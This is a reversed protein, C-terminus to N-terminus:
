VGTGKSGPSAMDEPDTAMLARLERIRTLTAEHEEVETPPESGPTRLADALERYAFLDDLYAQRMRAKFNKPRVVREPPALWEVEVEDRTFVIGWQGPMRVEVTEWDTMRSALSCKGWLGLWSGRLTGDAEYLPRMEWGGSLNCGVSSGDAYSFHVQMYAM